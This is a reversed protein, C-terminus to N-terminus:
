RRTTGEIAELAEPDFGSWFAERDNSRSFPADPVSVGLFRCLPTWGQSVEYVLLRDAPITRRVQESHDLFVRKANEEGVDGGFTQEIITRHGMAGVARAYPDPFRDYIEFVKRITGAFSDWWRDVDRLSLIVKADPFTESLERWYRASPWDVSARYGDFVQHWDMELGAAADQWYPLQDPNGFLEEMHHCPGFGLQELALKLSLTGTRGFGAGIVQLSM